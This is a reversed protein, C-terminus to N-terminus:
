TLLCRGERHAMEPGRHPILIPTLLAVVWIDLGIKNNSVIHWSVYVHVYVLLLNILYEVTELRRVLARKITGTEFWCTSSQAGCDM